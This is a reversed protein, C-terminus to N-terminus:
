RPSITEQAPLSIVENSDKAANKAAAKQAKVAPEGVQLIAAIVRSSSQGDTSISVHLQIYFRGEVSANITLPVRYAGGEQLEFVFHRSSSVITIGDSVSVDVTMKGDRVPSMLQLSYEYVGPTSAVLPQASHLSVAAGPKGLSHNQQLLKDNKERAKQIDPEAVESTSEIILPQASVNQSGSESESECAGLCSLFLIAILLKLCSLFFTNM